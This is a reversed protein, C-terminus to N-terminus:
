VILNCKMATFNTLIRLKTPLTNSKMNKAIMIIDLLYVEFTRLPPVQGYEM